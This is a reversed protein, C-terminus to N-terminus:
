GEGKYCPPPPQECPPKCCCGSLVGFAMLALVLGAIKKM